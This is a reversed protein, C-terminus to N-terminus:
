NSVASNISQAILSTISNAFANSVHGENRFVPLGHKVVQCKNSPCVFPNLDIVYANPLNAAISHLGNTVYIHRDNANTLKYQCGNAGIPDRGVLLAM